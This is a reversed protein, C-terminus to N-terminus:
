VGGAYQALSQIADEAVPALKVQLLSVAAKVSYMSIPKSRNYLERIYEAAISERNSWPVGEDKCKKLVVELIPADAKRKKRGNETWYASHLEELKESSFVLGHRWVVTPGTGESEGKCMYQWYREYDEGCLKLSYAGNGKLAEVKRTLQMRVQQLNRYTDTELFWHHHENDGAKEFVAFGAMGKETVWSKVSDFGVDTRLALRLPAM